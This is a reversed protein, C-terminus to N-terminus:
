RKGKKTAKAYDVMLLGDPRKVVASPKKRQVEQALLGVEPTPDGKFNYQYIGLGNNTNGVKEINEKVREDSMKLLQVGPTALGFLGGLLGMNSQNEAQWAQMNANHAAQTIGAVDTNAQSVRPANAPQFPTVQSGSMLASIENIPANREAAIEQNITGRADLELQNYADSRNQGFRRMEADWAASGAGVGQNALRTRLAEEQQQWQPDIRSRRMDALKGARENDGLQMNSGLLGRIRSSQENGINALTQQTRQNTDFLGQNAASYQQTSEYRPTGDAWTGIQNYTLKNGSADTQNVAQLGFNTIATERNSKTQAEATVKPDPAPPPSSAGM